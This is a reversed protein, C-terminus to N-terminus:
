KCYRIYRHNMNYIMMDYIYGSHDYIYIICVLTINHARSLFLIPLSSSCTPRSPRREACAREGRLIFGLEAQARKALSVITRQLALALADLVELADKGQERTELLGALKLGVECGRSM